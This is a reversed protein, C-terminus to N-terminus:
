AGVASIVADSGHQRLLNSLDAVYERENTGHSDGMTRHDIIKIDPYQKRLEENLIPFIRDGKFRGNWIECITKGNLDAVPPALDISPRSVNKGLPWVVEFLAERSVPKTQDM